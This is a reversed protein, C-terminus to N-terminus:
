RVHVPNRRQNFMTLNIDYKVSCADDLRPSQADNVDSGFPYLQVKSGTVSVHYLLM